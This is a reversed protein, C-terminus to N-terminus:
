TNFNNSRSKLQHWTNQTIQQIDQIQQDNFAPFEINEQLDTLDFGTNKRLERNKSLLRSGIMYEDNMNKCVPLESITGQYDFGKVAKKIVQEPDKCLDDYNVVMDVSDNDNLLHQNVHVWQQASQKLKDISFIERWKEPKIGWWGNEPGVGKDSKVYRKLLSFVNSVPHRYMAVIKCEPFIKKLWQIRVTNYPNKNMLIPESVNAQIIRERLLQQDEVRFDSDALYHGQKGQNLQYLEGCPKEEPTFPPNDGWFFKGEPLFPNHIFSQQM